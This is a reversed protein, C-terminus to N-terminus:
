EIVHLHCKFGAMPKFAVGCLRGFGRFLCEICMYVARTPNAAILMSM